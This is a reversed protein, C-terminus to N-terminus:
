NLRLEDEPNCEKNFCDVDQMDEFLTDVDSTLMELADDYEDPNTLDFTDIYDCIDGMADAFKYAESCNGTKKEKLFLALDIINKYIVSLTEEDENEEFEWVLDHLCESMGAAIIAAQNSQQIKKANELEKELMKEYQTSGSEVSGNDGMHFEGDKPQTKINDVEVSEVFATRMHIKVRRTEDERAHIIFTIFGGPNSLEALMEEETGNYLADNYIVENTVITNIKLM